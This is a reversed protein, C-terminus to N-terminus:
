KSPSVSLMSDSSWITGTPAPGAALLGPEAKRGGASAESDPCGNAGAAVQASSGQKQSYEDPEVPCGLPVTWRCALRICLASNYPTPTSPMVALSTTNEAALNNKAYPSPLPSVKGNATPAVANSIASRGVGVVTRSRKCPSCAGVM